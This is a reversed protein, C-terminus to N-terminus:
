TRKEVKLLFTFKIDDGEKKKEVKYGKNILIIFEELFMSDKM